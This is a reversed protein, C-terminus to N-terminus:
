RMTTMLQCCKSLMWLTGPLGATSTHVTNLNTNEFYSNVWEVLQDKSASTDHAIYRLAKRATSIIDKRIPEENANLDNAIKNIFAKNASNEAVNVLLQNLVKRDELMPALFASWAKKKIERVEKKLSRDLETLEEETAIENAIMWQRMKLICDTEKEWDLREKSKYREQSGSTSHGQPQTLETVHILVPVHQIRAIESARQYTDILAPYDWGKVRLIEYGEGHEDRQFGKLIESINEKTTQHKAHVSIGYEDDWISM